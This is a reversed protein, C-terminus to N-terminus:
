GAPTAGAPTGVVFAGKMFPHVDCRFLYTGAPLPGVRYTVTASGTCTGSQCTDNTTCLSADDCVSGNMKPPANM